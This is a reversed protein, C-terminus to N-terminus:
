NKEEVEGERRKIKEKYERMEERKRRRREV